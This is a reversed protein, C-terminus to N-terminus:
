PHLQCLLPLNCTMTELISNSLGELFSPLTFLDSGHLIELVVQRWGAFIVKDMLGLIKAQAQLGTLLPGDGMLM